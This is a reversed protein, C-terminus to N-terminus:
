WRYFFNWLMIDWSKCEFWGSKSNQSKLVLLEETKGRGKNFDLTHYVEQICSIWASSHAVHLLVSIVKLNNHAPVLSMKPDLFVASTEWQTNDVAYPLLTAPATPPPSQPSSTHISPSFPCLLHPFFHTSHPAYHTTLLNHLFFPGSFGFLPHLLKAPTQSVKHSDLQLCHFIQSVHTRLLM